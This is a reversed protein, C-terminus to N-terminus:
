RISLFVCSIISSELLMANQHVKYLDFVHYTPTLLIQDGETLIVSQLCNVVQAINAMKVRHAYKNFLNLNIAAVMADRMTNQQYLFGPHTGPLVDHWCGWEDIILAVIGSPDYEDMIEIHKKLMEEM